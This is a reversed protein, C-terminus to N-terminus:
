CSTHPFTCFRTAISRGYVITVIPQTQYTTPMFHPTLLMLRLLSVMASRGGHQWITTIRDHYKSVTMIYCFIRPLSYSREKTVDAVELEDLVIRNDEVSRNCSPTSVMWFSLLAKWFAVDPKLYWKMEPGHSIYDQVNGTLGNEGRLNQRSIGNRVLMCASLCLILLLKSRTKFGVLIDGLKDNGKVAKRHQM